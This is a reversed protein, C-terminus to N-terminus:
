IGEKNKEDEPQVFVTRDAEGQIEQGGAVQHELFSM